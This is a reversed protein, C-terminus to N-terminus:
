HMEIKLIQSYTKKAYYKSKQKVLLFFLNRCFLHHLSLIEIKEVIFLNDRLILLFFFEARLNTKLYASFYGSHPGYYFFNYGFKNITKKSFFNMFLYFYTESRSSFIQNTTLNNFKMLNEGLRSNKKKEILFIISCM